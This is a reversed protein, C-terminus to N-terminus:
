RSVPCPIEIFGVASVGADGSTHCGGIRCGADGLAPHGTPMSVTQPSDCREHALPCGSLMFVLITAYRM